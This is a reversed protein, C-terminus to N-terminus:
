GPSRGSTVLSGVTMHCSEVAEEPPIILREQQVSTFGAAEFTRRWENADLLKMRAGVQVTYGNGCGIDLYWADPALQMRDVLRRAVPGHGREM